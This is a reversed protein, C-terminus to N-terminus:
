YKAEFIRDSAAFFLKELDSWSVYGWVIVARGDSLKTVIGNAGVGASFYVCDNSQLIGVPKVKNLAKAWEEFAEDEVIDWSRAVNWRLSNDSYSQVIVPFTSKIGMFRKTQVSARGQERFEFPLSFFEQPFGSRFGPFNQVFKELDSREYNRYSDYRFVFIHNSNRFSQEQNFGRLIANSQFYGSNMYYDLAYVDSKFEIIFVNLTDGLAIVYRYTFKKTIPFANNLSDISFDIFPKLGYHVKSYDVPAEKKCSAIALAVVICMLRFYYRM